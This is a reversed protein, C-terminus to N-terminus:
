ASVEVTVGIQLLGATIGIQEVVLDPEGDWYATIDPQVDDPAGGEDSEIAIVYGDVSRVVEEDAAGRVTLIYGPADGAHTTVVTEGYVAARGIKLRDCAAQIVALRQISNGGCVGFVIPASM